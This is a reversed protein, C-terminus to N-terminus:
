DEEEDKKPLPLCVDWASAIGDIGLEMAAKWAVRMVESAQPGLTAIAAEEVLNNAENWHCHLLEHIVTNRLEHMDGNHDSLRLWARKAGQHSHCEGYAGESPPEDDLKIVWDKLGMRNAMDHIYPEIWKRNEAVWSM